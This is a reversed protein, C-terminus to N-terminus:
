RNRGKLCSLHSFLRDSFSLTGPRTRIAFTRCFDSNELFGIDPFNPRGSPFVLSRRTLIRLGFFPPSPSNQTEERDRTGTGQERREGMPGAPNSGVVEVVGFYRPVSYHLLASTVCESNKTVPIEYLSPIADIAASSNRRNPCKQSLRGRASPFQCQM